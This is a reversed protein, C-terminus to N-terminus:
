TPGTHDVQILLWVFPNTFGYDCAAFTPLAPNYTLHRVHTEEDFDKFVRGVFESFKAAIEQNFTEETLDRALAMVEPDIQLSKLLEPTLRMKQKIMEHLADIHRPNTKGPYVYPNLWSPM